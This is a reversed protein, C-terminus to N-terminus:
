VGRSSYPLRMCLGMREPNPYSGIWHREMVALLRTLAIAKGGGQSAQVGHVPFDGAPYIVLYRGAEETFRACMPHRKVTTLLDAVCAINETPSKNKMAVEVISM